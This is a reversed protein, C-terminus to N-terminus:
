MKRQMEQARTRSRGGWKRNCLTENESVPSLPVVSLCKVERWCMCCHFRFFVEEDMEAELGRCLQEPIVVRKSLLVMWFRRDIKPLTATVLAFTGRWYKKVLTKCSSACIFGLSLLCICLFMCIVVLALEPTASLLCRHVQLLSDTYRTILWGSLCRVDGVMEPRICTDALDSRPNRPVECIQLRMWVTPTVELPVDRNLTAELGHSFAATGQSVCVPLCCNGRLWRPDESHRSMVVGTLCSSQHEHEILPWQEWKVGSLM